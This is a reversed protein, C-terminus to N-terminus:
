PRRRSLAAELRASLARPRFADGFQQEVPGRDVAGDELLGGRRNEFGRRQLEGTKRPRVSGRFGAMWLILSM